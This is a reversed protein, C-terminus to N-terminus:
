LPLDIAFAGPGLFLLAFSVVALIIYFETTNKPLAGPKHHKIFSALLMLSGTVIAAGQTYFGITLLAGAIGEISSVVWFFAKVPYLKLKTFFELQERRHRIVKEYWFYVFILGITARLAFIGLMQYDLLHPFLSVTHM